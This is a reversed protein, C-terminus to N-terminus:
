PPPQDQYARDIREFVGEARMAALVQDLRDALEQAAAESKRYQRSIILFYDRLAQYPPDLTEVLHAANLAAIALRAGEREAIIAGVRGDLLKSLDQADNLAGSDVTVGPMQRLEHVISFGGPVAVPQPLAAVRRTESWGHAAGKRVVVVYSVARLRQKPYIAFAAREPRFSASYLGDYLGAAADNLCREWAMSRIEVAFGLRAFAAAVIETHSGSVPKGDQPKITYPPWDSTCLRITSEEAAAPVAAAAAALLLCLRLLVLLIRAM